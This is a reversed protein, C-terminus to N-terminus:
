WGADKLGPEKERPALKLKQFNARLKNLQEWPGTASRTAGSGNGPPPATGRAM